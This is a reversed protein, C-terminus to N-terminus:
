QTESGASNLTPAGTQTQNQRIRAGNLPTHSRPRTEPGPPAPGLAITSYNADAPHERTLACDRSRPSQPARGRPATPSIHVVVLPEAPVEADVSQHLEESRSDEAIACSRSCYSTEWSTFLTRLLPGLRVEERHDELTFGADPHPQSCMHGLTLYDTKRRCKCSRQLQDISVTTTSSSCGSTSAASPSVVATM